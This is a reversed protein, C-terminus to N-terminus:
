FNKSCNLYYEVKSLGTYVWIKYDLQPFGSNSYHDYNKKVKLFNVLKTFFRMRILLKYKKPNIKRGVVKDGFLKFVSKDSEYFMELALYKEEPGIFIDRFSKYNEMPFDKTRQILYFLEEVPYFDFILYCQSNRILTAYVVFLCKLNELRKRLNGNKSETFYLSKIEYFVTMFAGYDITGNQYDITLNQASFTIGECKTLNIEKKVLNNQIRNTIERAIAVLNSTIEFSEENKIKNEFKL